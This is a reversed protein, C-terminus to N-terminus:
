RGPPSKAWAARLMERQEPTGVAAMSAGLAASLRAPDTSRDLENLWRRTHGLAHRPKSALAAAIELARPECAGADEVCESAIGVRVAERGDILGADLLRARAPGEGSCAALMPASVAPSIGLRVAPYGLKAGANTVVVDCGCLLACGGAVAAGHASAVVPCPAERLALAARSLGDLLAPLVGDDEQAQTLDFGACFVDGVGSLVIARASAATEVAKALSALMGPTLANRKEARDLRIVAVEGMPDVRIM